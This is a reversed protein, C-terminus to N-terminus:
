DSSNGFLLYAVSSHFLFIKCLGLGGNPRYELTLKEYWHFLCLLDQQGRNHPADRMYVQMFITLRNGLPPATANLRLQMARNRASDLRLSHGHHPKEGRHTKTSEWYTGWDEPSLREVLFASLLLAAGKQCVKHTLNSVDKM